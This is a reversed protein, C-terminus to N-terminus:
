SWASTVYAAPRTVSVPTFTTSTYASSTMNTTAKITTNATTSGASVTTTQSLATFTKGNSVCTNTVAGNLPFKFDYCDFNIKNLSSTFSGYIGKAGANISGRPYFGASSSIRIRQTWSVSLDATAFATITVTNTAGSYGYAYVYNGYSSLSNGSLYSVNGSITKTLTNVFSSDYKRLTNSSYGLTYFNNSSDACLGNITPEGVSFSALTAPAGKVIKIVNASGGAMYFNNGDTTMACLITRAEISTVYPKNYYYNTVTGGSTVFTAGVYYTGAKTDTSPGFFASNGSSDACGTNYYQVGTNIRVPNFLTSVASGSFLTANTGISTFGIIATPHYNTSGVGAISSSSGWTTHTSSYYAGTAPTGDSNLIWGATRYSGSVLQKYFHYSNGTTPNVLYESDPDAYNNGTPNYIGRYLIWYTNNSKGYGDSMSIQGSAVGFLTRVATDNLSITATASYALEVNVDSFSIPGSAPLTM